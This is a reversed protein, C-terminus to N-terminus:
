IEYRGNESRESTNDRLALHRKPCQMERYIEGFCPRSRTECLATSCCTTGGLWRARAKRPGRFM